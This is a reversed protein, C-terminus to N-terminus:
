HTTVGGGGPRPRRKDDCIGDAAEPADSGSGPLKQLNNPSSPIANKNGGKVHQMQSSNLVHNLRATKHLTSLQKM